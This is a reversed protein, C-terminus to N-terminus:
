PRRAVGFRELASRMDAGHGVPRVERDVTLIRGDPGIYFTWRSPLGIPGLVGYARVVRKDADSLIPVGIGTAEAFARSTEVTDCCAAFIAADFGDLEAKTLGISRCESTCGSTFAKPFWAVVVTRGRLTSLRYSRGDSAPLEFEPAIDGADLHERPRKRDGRALSVIASGVAAVLARARRARTLPGIRDARSDVGRAM